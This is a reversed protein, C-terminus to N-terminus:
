SNLQLILGKIACVAQGEVTTMAGKMNAGPPGLERTRAGATVAIQMGSIEIGSPSIAIKNPGVELSVAASAKLALNGQGDLTLTVAGNVDVGFPGPTKLSVGDGEFTLMSGGQTLRYATDTTLDYAGQITETKDKELEFTQPGKVKRSHELQYTETVTKTVSVDHEDQLIETHKKTVTTKREGKITIEEGNEEDGGVTKTRKGAVTLSQDGGVSERQSKKVSNSQAGTVTTAHDNLVQEVYDKQARVFVQEHDKEDEFRLENYRSPDVSSATKIGSRTPKDRYPPTNLGNYLCGTVVPRDPDGDIFLVVVEMGVRPIFQAGWGNGAWGQAVRLWCSTTGGEGAPTEDWHFKVRVRGHADTVVDEGQASSSPAAVSGSRDVVQATQVSAIRPKPPLPPRFAHERPVCEFSNGYEGRHAASGTARVTSGEHVVGTILYEEGEVRMFHGPRMRLANSKGCYVRRDRQYRELRLQAQAESDHKRYRPAQYDFGAVDGHEYARLEPGSSEPASKEVEEMLEPHTWNFQRVRVANTGVAHRLAFSTIAEQTTSRDRERLLELEPDAAISPAKRPSDTIVMREAQEEGPPHDFYYWLGQEALIRQLFALDSERHQVIYERQPYEAQMLDLTAKRAFPELARELEGLALDGITTESFIRSSSVHALAALAPAITLHVVTLAATSVGDEIREVIGHVAREAARSITITCGKGLMAAPNSPAEDCGLELAVRYPQSISETITVTRVAWAPQDAASTSFRFEVGHVDGFLSAVSEQAQAPPM